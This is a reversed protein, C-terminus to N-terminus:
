RDFFLLVMTVLQFFLLDLSHLKAFLNKLLAELSKKGEFFCRNQRERTSLFTSSYYNKLAEKRKVRRWLLAM